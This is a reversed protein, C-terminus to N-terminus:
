MSFMPLSSTSITDAKEPKLNPNGGTLQVISYSPAPAGPRVDALPTIVQNQGSFLENVNAARIDRSYTGRLRIDAIPTYNVGIKYTTVGGSSSRGNSVM